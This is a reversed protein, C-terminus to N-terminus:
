TPSFEQNLYPSMEEIFAGDMKELIAKAKNPSMDNIMRAADPSQMRKQIVLAAKEPKVYELSLKFSSLDINEKTGDLSINSLSCSKSIASTHKLNKFRLSEQVSQKVPSSPSASSLRGRSDQKTELALTKLSPNSAIKIFDNHKMRDSTIITPAESAYQGKEVAELNGGSNKHKFSRSLSTVSQADSSTHSSHFTQFRQWFSYIGCALLVSAVLGVVAYAHWPLSMKIKPLAASPQNGLISSPDL